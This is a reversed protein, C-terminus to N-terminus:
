EKKDDENEQDDEDKRWDRYDLLGGCALGLFGGALAGPGPSAALFHGALAGVILGAFTFFGIRTTM